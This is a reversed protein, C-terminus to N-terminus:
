EQGTKHFGRTDDVLELPKEMVKAYHSATGSLPSESSSQIIVREADTTIAVIEFDGAGTTVHQLKVINDWALRDAEPGTRYETTFIVSRTEEDVLIKQSLPRQSVFWFTVAGLVAMAALAVLLSMPSGSTGEVSFNPEETKQGM